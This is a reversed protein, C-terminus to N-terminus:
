VKLTTSRLSGKIKEVAGPEPAHKTMDVFVGRGKGGVKWELSESEM